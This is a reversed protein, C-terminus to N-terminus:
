LPSSVPGTGGGADNWGFARGSDQRWWGQFIHKFYIHKYRYAHTYVYVCMIYVYTEWKEKRTRYITCCCTKEKSRSLSLLVFDCQYEVMKSSRFKSGM